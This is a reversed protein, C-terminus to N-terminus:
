PNAVSAQQLPAIPRLTLPATGRTTGHSVEMVICLHTDTLMVKRFGIINRHVLTRHNLIEREVNKDIKDGRCPHSPPLPRQNSASSAPLLSAGTACERM